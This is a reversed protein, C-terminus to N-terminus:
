RAFHWQYVTLRFIVALGITAGVLALGFPALVAFDVALGVALNVAVGGIAGFCSLTLEKSIIFNSSDKDKEM